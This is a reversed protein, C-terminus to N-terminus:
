QFGGGLLAISMQYLNPSLFYLSTLLPPQFHIYLFTCTSLSGLPNTQPTVRLCPRRIHMHPVGTEPTKPGRVELIVLLTVYILTVGSSYNVLLM